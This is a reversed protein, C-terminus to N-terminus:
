AIVVFAKVPEIIEWHADTGKPFVATVGATLEHKRGGVTIRLHGSIVHFTEDVDFPSTWERRGCTWVGAWIPGGLAPDSVVAIEGARSGDPLLLPEARGATEAPNVVAVNAQM